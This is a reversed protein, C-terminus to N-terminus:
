RTQFHFHTSFNNSNSFIACPWVSSSFRTLSLTKHVFVLASLGLHWWAGQPWFAKRAAEILEQVVTMASIDM